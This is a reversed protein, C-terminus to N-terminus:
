GNHEGDKVDQGAAIAAERRERARRARARRGKGEGPDREIQPPRARITPQPTM